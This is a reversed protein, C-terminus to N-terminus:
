QKRRQATMRKRWRIRSFRIALHLLASTRRGLVASRQFIGVACRWRMWITNNRSLPIVIELGVAKLADIKRRHLEALEDLAIELMPARDDVRDACPDLSIFTRMVAPIPRGGDAL